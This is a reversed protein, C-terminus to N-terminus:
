ANLLNKLPPALQVIKESIAKVLDDVKKFRDNCSGSFQHLAEKGAEKERPTPNASQTAAIWDDLRSTLKRSWPENPYLSCLARLKTEFHPWNRIKRHPQHQLANKAHELEVSFAQWAYHEAIVGAVTMRVAGVSAAGQRLQELEDPSPNARAVVADAMDVLSALRLDGAAEALALNIRASATNVLSRLSINVQGRDLESADPQAVTRMDDSLTKLGDIWTRELQETKLNATYPEADDALDSIHRAHRQLM